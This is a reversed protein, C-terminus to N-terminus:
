HSRGGESLVRRIFDRSLVPSAPLLTPVLSLWTLIQGAASRTISASLSAVTLFSFIWTLLEYHIQNKPFKISTLLQEYMLFNCLFTQVNLLHVDCRYYILNMSWRRGLENERTHTHGKRTERARKSWEWILFYVGQLTKHKEWIRHAEKTLSNFDPMM